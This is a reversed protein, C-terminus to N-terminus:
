NLQNRNEDTLANKQRKRKTVVRKHLTQIQVLLWNRDNNPKVDKKQNFSSYFVKQM